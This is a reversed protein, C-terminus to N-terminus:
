APAATLTSPDPGSPAAAVGRGSAAKSGQALRRQKLHWGQSCGEASALRRLAHSKCGHATSCGPVRERAACPAGAPRGAAGSGPPLRAAGRSCADPFRVAQIGITPQDVRGARGLHRLEQTTVAQQKACVPVQQQPTVPRWACTIKFALSNEPSDKPASLATHMGPQM